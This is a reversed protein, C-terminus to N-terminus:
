LQGLPLRLLFYQLACQKDPGSYCLAQVPDCVSRRRRQLEIAQSFAKEKKALQQTHQNATHLTRPESAKIQFSCVPFNGNDIQSSHRAEPGNTRQFTPM